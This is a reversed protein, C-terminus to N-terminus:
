KGEISVGDKGVNIEVGGTKENEQYLGFGLAGVTVALMGIVLYLVNRKM